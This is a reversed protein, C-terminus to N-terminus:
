DPTCIVCSPRASVISNNPL